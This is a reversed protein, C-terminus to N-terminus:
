LLYLYEVLEKNAIYFLFLFFYYIFEYLDFFLINAVIVAISSNADMISIATGCAFAAIVKDAIVGAETLGPSFIVAVPATV